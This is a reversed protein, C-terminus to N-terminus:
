YVKRFGVQVMRRAKGERSLGTIYLNHMTRLRNGTQLSSGRTVEVDIVQFRCDPFVQSFAAADPHGSAAAVRTSNSPGDTRDIWNATDHIYDALGDYKDTDSMADFRNNEGRSLWSVRTSSDWDSDKLTAGSLHEVREAALSATSEAQAKLRAITKDNGALRLEYCTTTMAVAGLISLTALLVLATLLVAGNQNRARHYSLLM